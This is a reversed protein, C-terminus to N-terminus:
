RGWMCQRCPTNHHSLLFFDVDDCVERCRWFPLGLKCAPKSADMSKRRCATDLSKSAGDLLLLRQNLSHKVVGLVIPNISSNSANQAMPAFSAARTAAIGRQYFPLMKDSFRILRISPRLMRMM